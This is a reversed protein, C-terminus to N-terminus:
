PSHAKANKEGTSIGPSGAVRLSAKSLLSASSHFFAISLSSFLMSSFPVHCNTSSGSPRLAIVDLHSKLILNSASPLISRARGATHRSTVGAAVRGADMDRTMSPCYHRHPLLLPHPHPHHCLHPSRHHRHLQLCRHRHRSPHRLRLRRRHLHLRCLRLQAAPVGAAAASEHSGKVGAAEHTTRPAGPTQLYQDRY